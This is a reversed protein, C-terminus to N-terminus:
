YEPTNSKYKISMHKYNELIDPHLTVSLDNEHNKNWIKIIASTNKPGFSIGNIDDQQNVLQHCVMRVCFTEYLNLATDIDTKFSCIGGNRNEEHEWIPEVGEKMFFLNNLRYGLKDLNNFLKWFHSVNNIICLKHYGNITWNKSYIDHCWLVYNNTLAINEGNLHNNDINTNDIIINEISIKPIVQKHVIPKQQKKLKPNGVIRWEQMREM